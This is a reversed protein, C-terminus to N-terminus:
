RWRVSGSGTRRPWWSRPIAAETSSASARTRTCSPTSLAARVWGRRLRWPASELQLRELRARRAQAATLRVKQRRYKRKEYPGYNLLDQLERVAVKVQKAKTNADWTEDERRWGDCEGGFLRDANAASLGLISRAVTYVPLPHFTGFKRVDQPLYCLERLYPRYGEMLVTHGALCARTGCNGYPDKDIWTTQEYQEPRISNMVNILKRIKGINM